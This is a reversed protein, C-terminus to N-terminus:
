RWTKVEEMPALRAMTAALEPVPIRGDTSVALEHLGQDLAFLQRFDGLHVLAASRDVKESVNRLIGTVTFLENGLSGDAAQVVAVLQSGVQAKLARALKKGLIVGNQPSASLFTGAEM